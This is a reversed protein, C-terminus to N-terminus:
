HHPPKVVTVLSSCHLPQVARYVPITNVFENGYGLADNFFKMKEVAKQEDSLGPNKEILHEYIEKTRPLDVLNYEYETVFDKDFRLHGTLYNDFYNWHALSDDSDPELLGAIVNGAPQNMPILYDGAEFQWKERVREVQVQVERHAQFCKESAAVSIVKFVEVLTEFPKLLVEVAAGHQQVKMAIRWESKPLLYALPRPVSRTMVYKGFYPATYIKKTKTPVFGVSGDANRKEKVEYGIITVSKEFATQEIELGLVNKKADFKEGRKITEAVATRVVDKVEAAHRFTYELNERMFHYAAMVRREFSVYSYTEMLISIKNQLGGYSAGYRAHHSYTKWGQEPRTHDVFDGYYFMEIGTDKKIKARVAPLMTDRTYDILQKSANPNQPFGYTLDYGHRSGDTTHGDVIVDPQWALYVNEILAATEVAEIKMYDRNLDLGIANTRIGVGGEPGLQSLRNATSFRENGDANYVPVVLIILKDLLQNLKGFVLERMLMMSAEKPCVEGAHINNQLLVITKGSMVAHEPTYLQPRSFAAMYLNRGETTKGFTHLTMDGSLSSLDILFNEVDRYTSTATFNSKEAVTVLNDSFMLGRRRPNSSRRSGDSNGNIGSYNEERRDAGSRKEKAAHGSRDTAVQPMLKNSTTKMVPAGTLTKTQKKPM